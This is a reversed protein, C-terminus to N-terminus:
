ILCIIMWWLHVRIKVMKRHKPTYRCVSRNWRNQRASFLHWFSVPRMNNHSSKSQWWICNKYIVRRSYLVAIAPITLCFSVFSILSLLSARYVYNWKSRTCNRPHVVVAIGPYHMINLLPQWLRDITNTFNVSLKIQNAKLVAVTIFFLFEGSISTTSDRNLYIIPFKLNVTRTL